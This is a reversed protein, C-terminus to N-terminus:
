QSLPLLHYRDQRFLCTGPFWLGLMQSSPSTADDKGAVSMNNTLKTHFAHTSKVKQKAINRVRQLNLKALTAASFATQLALIQAFPACSNTDPNYQHGQGKMQDLIDVLLHLLFHQTMNISWSSSKDLFSTLCQIANFYQLVSLIIKKDPLTSDYSVQHISQIIAAPDDVFNPFIQVFIKKSIDERAASLILTELTDVCEKICIQANANANIISPPILFFPKNLSKPHDWIADLVTQGNSTAWDNPGFFTTSPVDAGTSNM